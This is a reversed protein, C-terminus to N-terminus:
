FLNPKSTESTNNSILSYLQKDTHQVKLGGPKEPKEKFIGNSKSKIYPVEDIADPKFFVSSLLFALALLKM